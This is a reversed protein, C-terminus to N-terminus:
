NYIFLGHLCSVYFPYNCIHINPPRPPFNLQSSDTLGLLKPSATFFHLSVSIFLLHLYPKLDLSLTVLKVYDPKPWKKNALNHGLERYPQHLFFHGCTYNLSQTSHVSEEQSGSNERNTTFLKNKVPSVDWGPRPGGMGM